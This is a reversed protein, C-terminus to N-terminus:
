HLREIAPLLFLLLSLYSTREFPTPLHSQRALHAEVVTIGRPKSKVWIVTSQTFAQAVREAQTEDLAM